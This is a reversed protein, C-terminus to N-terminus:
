RQEDHPHRTHDVRQPGHLFRELTARDRNNNGIERILTRGEIERRRTAERERRPVAVRETQQQPMSIRRRYTCHGGTPIDRRNGALAIAEAAESARGKSQRKKSIAAAGAPAPDYRPIM